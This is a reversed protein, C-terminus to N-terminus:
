QVHGFVEPYVLKAMHEVAEPYRLGPNLLFLEEPLLYVQKNQVASLAAWAPNSEVDGKIRNEVEPGYGMTVVFIKDPDAEVLKELSYPTADPDSELAKSGSAINTLRLQKAISGTISNDLEVTVSKATAHLIAVKTPKDPVKAVIANVKAEIDRALEEGKPTTGAISSFLKLKDTIDQYGKIRILLVPIHNSELVPILKEHIGQFAIVLDPQLSIVKELNVNYVYGIEPVSQAAPPIQGTRSGPRGVAKGDVAYLFELFSTSLVVIKEPKHPLVVTRGADDTVSLYSNAQGASNPVRSRSCGTLLVLLVVVGIVFLSYKKSVQM